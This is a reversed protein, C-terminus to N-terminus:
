GNEKIYKFTDSNGFEDSIPTDKNIRNFDVYFSKGTFKSRMLVEGTMYNISVIAADKITDEDIFLKTYDDKKPDNYSNWYPSLDVTIRSYPYECETIIVSSPQWYEPAKREIFKYKEIHDRIDTHTELYKNLANKYLANHVNNYRNSSFDSLSVPGNLYVMDNYDKIHNEVSTTKGM